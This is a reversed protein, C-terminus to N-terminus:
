SQAQLFERPDLRTVGEIDDFHRDASIIETISNNLMVALHLWDCPAMQPYRDGLERAMTIDASTVPLVM